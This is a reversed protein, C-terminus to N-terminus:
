LITIRLYPFYKILYIAAAVIFVIEILTIILKIGPQKLWERKNTKNKLM